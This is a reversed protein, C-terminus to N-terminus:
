TGRGEKFNKHFLTYFFHRKSGFYTKQRNIKWQKLEETNEAHLQEFSEVGYYQYVKSTESYYKLYYYLRYGLAKNEIELPARVTATFESTKKDVAFDLVEPNLLKCQEANPTKGFFEDMFKKLNNKWEIPEKGEVVVPSLQINKPKLRFVIKKEAADTMDITEIQPTYGIFSAVTQHVGYPVNTIQFKGDTGSAAGITSGSIFINISPLPANTSDDVVMGKVVGNFKDQACLNQALFAYLVAICWIIFGTRYLAVKRMRFGM